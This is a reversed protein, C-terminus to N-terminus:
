VTGLLVRHVESVEISKLLLSDQESLLDGLRKFGKDPEENLLSYLWIPAREVKHLWGANVIERPSHPYETMMSLPEYIDLTSSSAQSNLIGNKFDLQILKEQVDSLSHRASSSVLIGQNLRESLQISREWQKESFAWKSPILKEAARYIIALTDEQWIPITDLDANKSRECAEHLILLSKHIFNQHNLGFFLASEIQKLAAISGTLLTQAVVEFYYAPGLIRLQIAHRFLDELLAEDSHQASAIAKKARGRIVEQRLAELAGTSSMLNNITTECLSLWGLPNSKQLIPLPQILINPASLNSSLSNFAQNDGEAVLFVSLEGFSKGHSLLADNLFLQTEPEIKLNNLHTLVRSPSCLRSYVEQLLSPISDQRASRPNTAMGSGNNSSSNLLYNLSNRQELILGELEASEKLLGEYLKPSQLQLEDGAVQTLLRFRAIREILEFVLFKLLTKQM